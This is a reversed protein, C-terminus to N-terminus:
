ANKTIGHSRLRNIRGSLEADNTLCAGGEGTTVIKVPHFSFVSIDSFECSGIPKNKYFGGIGHSADEIIKFGYKQSLKHIAEMDCSLGCLHVPIVVKPLRGEKKAQELKVALQDPSMNYTKSDIDVFDVTAGCYLACNSSAVFSNPSTWVYDGPGVGLALCAVHLASTASNMVSAYKATTVERLKDELQGIVPGQTVFDSKLVQVVSEIDKDTIDQRGYPIFKM